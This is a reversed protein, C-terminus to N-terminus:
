KKQPELSFKIVDYADEVFKFKLAKKLEPPIDILDKRNDKPLIVTKIGYRYAALLKEKLGGIPLVQGRLTIEGTMALNEKVPRCTALSALAVAMTVGASPGDKPTAGSPVHIHLEHNDFFDPPIKLAHTLSRVFSLAAQMSEKMVEGLHGTLTLAKKGPM